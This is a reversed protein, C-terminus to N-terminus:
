RAAAFAKALPAAVAAAEESDCGEVDPPSLEAEPSGYPCDVDSWVSINWVFSSPLDTQPM